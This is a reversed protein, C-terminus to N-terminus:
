IMTWDGAAAAWGGIALNAAVHAQIADTVRGRRLALLAFVLGALGALLWKEHLAAFLISTALIALVRMWPSGTDLRRLLYGRFFLEEVVPAIVITGALRAAIWFPGHAPAAADAPTTHLGIWLVAIALGLAPPLLDLRWPLRSLVPWFLALAAAGTALRVPYVQEPTLTIAPLVLVPLLFAVFPLIQAAREDRRLNPVQAAPESATGTPRRFWSLNVACWLLVVSLAVFLLWGANSHFGDIALEPSIRVGIWVLATIRVANLCWSLIAGILILLAMRRPDLERRLLIAIGTLFGGVLAAGEIGSCSQNVRVRFDGVIIRRVEYEFSAEIGALPLLAKVAGLTVTDVGPVNWLKGAILRLTEPSLALVCVIAGVALVLLAAWSFRADSRAHPREARM